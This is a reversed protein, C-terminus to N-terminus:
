RGASSVSVVSGPGPAETQEALNCIGQIELYSIVEDALEEPTKEGAM